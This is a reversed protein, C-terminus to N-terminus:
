NTFPRVMFRYATRIAQVTWAVGIFTYMLALFLGTFALVVLSEVVSPKILKAVPMKSAVKAKQSVAM